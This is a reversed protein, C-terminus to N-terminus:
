FPAPGLGEDVLAKLEGQKVYVNSMWGNCLELGLM